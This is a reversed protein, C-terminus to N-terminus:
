TLAVCHLIYLLGEETKGDVVTRGSFQREGKWRMECPSDKSNEEVFAKADEYTRCVRCIDRDEWYHHSELNEDWEIREVVFCNEAM